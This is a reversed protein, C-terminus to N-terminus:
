PCPRREVVARGTPAISIGRLKEGKCDKPELEFDLNNGNDLAGDGTFAVFTANNGSDDSLTSGDDFAARRRLVNEGQATEVTGRTPGNDNFVIWGVDWDNNGSCANGDSSACVSVPVGRKLAESRAFTLATLFENANSTARQSVLFQQFNPIAVAAAVSIIVLLVMLEILTFGPASKM